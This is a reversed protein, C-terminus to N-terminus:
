IKQCQMTSIFPRFVSLHKTPNLNTKNTRSFALITKFKNSARNVKIGSFRPLLAILIDWSCKCDCCTFWRCDDDRSESIGM